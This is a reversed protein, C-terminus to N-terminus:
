NSLPYIGQRTLPCQIAIEKAKEAKLSQASRPHSSDESKENIFEYHTSNEFNKIVKRALYVGLLYPYLICVCLYERQRCWRRLSDM